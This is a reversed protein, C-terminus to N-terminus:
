LVAAPQKLDRLGGSFHPTSYITLMADQVLTYSIPVNRRLLFVGLSEM